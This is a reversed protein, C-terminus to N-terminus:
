TKVRGGKENNLLFLVDTFPLNQDELNWKGDYSKWTELFGKFVCKM